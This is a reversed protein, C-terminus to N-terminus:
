NRRQTRSTSDLGMNRKASDGREVQEEARAWLPLVENAPKKSVISEDSKGLGNM